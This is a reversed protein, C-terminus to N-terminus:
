VVWFDGRRTWRPAPAPRSGPVVTGLLGRSFPKGRESGPGCDEPSEAERRKEKQGSGERAPQADATVHATHRGPGPKMQPGERERGEAAGDCAAAAPRLPSRAPPAQARGRKRGPQHRRGNQGDEEEEQEEQNSRLTRLPSPPSLGPAPNPAKEETGLRHGSGGEGEEGGGGRGLGARGRTGPDSRRM